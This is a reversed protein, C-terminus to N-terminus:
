ASKSYRPLLNDSAWIGVSHQHAYGRRPSAIHRNSRDCPALRVAVRRGSTSRVHWQRRSRSFAHRQCRPITPWIWHRFAFQSPEAIRASIEVRRDLLVPVSKAVSRCRATRYQNHVLTSRVVVRLFRRYRIRGNGFGRICRGLRGRGGRLLRFPWAM